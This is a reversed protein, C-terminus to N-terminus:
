EIVRPVRFFGKVESPANRTAEDRPLSGTPTDDRFVSSLAGPHSMPEVGTTDLENLKAIYDLVKNLEAATKEIAEEGLELRALLAVHMLEAKTLGM